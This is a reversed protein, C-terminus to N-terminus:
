AAGATGEAGTRGRSVEHFGDLGMKRCPELTPGVQVGVLCLTKEVKRSVRDAAPFVDPFDTPLGSHEDPSDFCDGSKSVWAMRVTAELSIDDMADRPPVADDAETRGERVAEGEGASVAM